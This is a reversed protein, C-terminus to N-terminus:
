EFEVLDLRLWTEADDPSWDETTHASLKVLRIDLDCEANLFRVATVLQSPFDEDIIMGGKYVPVEDVDSLGHASVFANFKEEYLRVTLRLSDKEAEEPLEPMGKRPRELFEKHLYQVKKMSWPHTSRLDAIYRILQGHTDKAKGGIKLECAYLHRDSRLYLLDIRQDEEGFKREYQVLATDSFPLSGWVDSKQLINQVHEVERWGLDKKLNVPKTLTGPETGRRGAFPRIGFWIEGTEDQLLHISSILRPPPKTPPLTKEEPRGAVM